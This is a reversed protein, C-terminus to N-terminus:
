MKHRSFVKLREYMTDVMAGIYTDYKYDDVFSHALPVLDFENLYVRGSHPNYFFDARIQLCKRADEHVIKKTKLNDVITTMHRKMAAMMNNTAENPQLIGKKEPCVPLILRRRRDRWPWNRVLELEFQRQNGLFHGLPSEDDVYYETMVMYHITNKANGLFSYYVRIERKTFSEVFPEAAFKSNLPPPRPIEMKSLTQGKHSSPANPRTDPSIIATGLAGYGDSPKLILHDSSFGHNGCSDIFSQPVRARVKTWDTCDANIHVMATPLRAERLDRNKREKDQNYDLLQLDPLLRTKQLRKCWGLVAKTHDSIWCSHGHVCTEPLQYVGEHGLEDNGARSAAAGSLAVDDAGASGPNGGIYHRAGIVLDFARDVAEALKKQMDETDPGSPCCAVTQLSSARAFRINAGMPNKRALCFCFFPMSDHLTIQRYTEDPNNPYQPHEVPPLAFKYPLLSRITKASQNDGLDDLFQLVYDKRHEEMESYDIFDRGDDRIEKRDHTVVYEMGQDPIVALIRLQKNVKRTHKDGEVTSDSTTETKKAKKKRSKKKTTRSAESSEDGQRAAKKSSKKKRSQKKNKKNSDQKKRVGSQKRRKPPPESSSNDDDDADDDDPVPHEKQWQKAPGEKSANNGRRKRPQRKKNPEISEEDIEDSQNSNDSQSSHMSADDSDDKHSDNEDSNGKMEDEDEDDYDDDDNDNRNESSVADDTEADDGNSRNNMHEEEESSGESSNGLAAEGSASGEADRRQQQSANSRQRTQGLPKSKNPGQSSRKNAASKASSKTAGKRTSATRVEDQQQQQDTSEESASAAERRSKKNAKQKDHPMASNNINNRTPPTFLAPSDNNHARVLTTTLPLPNGRL